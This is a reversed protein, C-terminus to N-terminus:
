DILGLIFMLTAPALVAFSTYIGFETGIGRLRYFAVYTVAVIMFTLCIAVGGLRPIPSDHVDRRRITNCTWGHKLATNRVYHTLVSSLLLAITFLVLLHLNTGSWIGQVLTNAWIVVAGSSKIPDKITAPPVLM